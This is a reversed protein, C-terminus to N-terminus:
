ETKETAPAGEVPEQRHFDSIAPTGSYVAETLRSDVRLGETLRVARIAAPEDRAIVRPL